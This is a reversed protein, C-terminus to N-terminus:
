EAATSGLEDLVHEALTRSIGHVTMLDEATSRRIAAVSGFRELLAARRTPGIGPVGDLESQQVSARRRTRQYTVAFRHAEDRVRQVLYLAESGRPLVVPTRRGPLWLEEFQKALAAFAVDDVLGGVPQDAPAVDEGVPFADPGPVAAHRAHQM